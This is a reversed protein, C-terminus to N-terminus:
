DAKHASPILQFGTARWTWVTFLFYGNMLLAFNWELINRLPHKLVEDAANVPISILGLVMQMLCLGLKIRYLTGPIRNGPRQMFRYIRATLLLQALYTFAFFFTIGYRRMLQYIKGESGLFVAYVILFVAAILGLYFIVPAYGPKDDHMSQLWAQVLKWYVMMFVAAPIVTARFVFNAPERRGAESISSCGDLYPICWDVYQLSASLLYTVHVGILAPVAALVAIPTVKM